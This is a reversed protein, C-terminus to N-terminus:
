RKALWQAVVVTLILTGHVGFPERIAFRVKNIPVPAWGPAMNGEQPAYSRAGCIPEERGRAALNSLRTV